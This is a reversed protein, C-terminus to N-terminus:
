YLLQHVTCKRCDFFQNRGMRTVLRGEFVIVVVLSVHLSRFGSSFIEFSYNSNSVQIITNIHGLYWIGRM